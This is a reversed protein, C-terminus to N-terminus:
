NLESAKKSAFLVVGAIAIMSVATIYLATTGISGTEPLETGSHNIVEVGGSNPRYGGDPNIEGINNANNITVSIPTTNKNYGAPATQEVLYYTGSKLGCIEVNGATIVSPDGNALLLRPTPAPSVPTVVPNENGDFVPIEPSEPAVFYQDGVKIVEIEEECKSDAYLKFTAGSIINHNEDTKYLGFKYTKTVTTDRETQGNNRGYTMYVTNINGAVDGNADREAIVANENLRAHYEIEITIDETIDDLYSEEFTITLTQGKIEASYVGSRSIEDATTVFSLGDDMTDIVVYNEAGKHANVTLKFTLDEGINAANEKVFTKADGGKVLKTVTPPTNKDRVKVSPSISTVSVLTGVSTDIFYYGPELNDFTVLIGNSEDKADINKEDAIQEGAKQFSRVNERLWAIAGDSLESADTGNESTRLAADTASYTGTEENKVFYGNTPLPSGEIDFYLIGDKSNEDRGETVEARLVRYLTYEQGAVAKQVTISLGSTEEALAPLAMCLVLMVSLILAFGKKM